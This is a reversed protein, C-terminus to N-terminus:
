SPTTRNDDGEDEFGKIINHLSKLAGLMNTQEQRMDNIAQVVNTMPEDQQSEQRYSSSTGCTQWEVERGSEIM